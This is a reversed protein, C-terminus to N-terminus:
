RYIMVFGKHPESGDGLDIFWYYTGEPLPEGKWTGDWDNQYNEVDLITSGWRNFVSLKHDPFYFLEDIIWTDNDGDGNPTFASPM